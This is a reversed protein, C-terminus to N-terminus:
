QCKKMCKLGKKRIRNVRAQVMGRCCVSVESVRENESESEIM